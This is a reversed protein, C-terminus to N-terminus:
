KEGLEKLKGGVYKNWGAQTRFAEKVTFEWADREKSVAWVYGTLVTLWAALFWDM